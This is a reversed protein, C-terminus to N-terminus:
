NFIKIWDNNDKDKNMGRKIAKYIEPNKYFYDKIDFPINNRQKASALFLKEKEEADINGLADIMKILLNGTPPDNKDREILSITMKNRSVKTAINDITIKQKERIERYLKGFTYDNM